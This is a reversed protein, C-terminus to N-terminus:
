VNLTNLYEPFFFFFFGKAWVCLAAQFSMLTKGFWKTWHHPSSCFMLLYILMMHGERM